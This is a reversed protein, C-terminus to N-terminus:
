PSFLFYPIPADDSTARAKRRKADAILDELKNLNTVVSREELITQFEDQTGRM